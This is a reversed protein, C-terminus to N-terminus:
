KCFQQPVPGSRDLHSSTGFTTHSTSSGARTGHLMHCLGGTPMREEFKSQTGDTPVTTCLAISPLPDAVWQAATSHLWHISAVVNDSAQPVFQPRWIHRVRTRSTSGPRTLEERIRLAGSGVPRNSSSNGLSSGVVLVPALSAPGESHAAHTVGTGLSGAVSSFM